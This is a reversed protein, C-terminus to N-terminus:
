WLQSLKQPGDPDAKPAEHDAVFTQDGGRCAEQM